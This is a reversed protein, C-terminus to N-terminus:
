PMTELQGLSRVGIKINTPFPVLADPIIHEMVSKVLAAVRPCLRAPLELIIEDHLQMQLWVHPRLDPDDALARSLEIMAQPPLACLSLCLGLVALRM